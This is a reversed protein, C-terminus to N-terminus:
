IYVDRSMMARSPTISFHKNMIRHPEPYRDPPVRQRSGGHDRAEGGRKKVKKGSFKHFEQDIDPWDGELIEFNIM